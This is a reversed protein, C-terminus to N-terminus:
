ILPPYLCRKNLVPLRATMAVTLYPLCNNHIFTPAIDSMSAREHDLSSTVSSFFRVKVSTNPQQQHLVHVNTILIAIRHPYQREHLPSQPSASTPTLSLEFVPLRSLSTIIISRSPAVFHTFFLNHSPFFSYRVFVIISTCM